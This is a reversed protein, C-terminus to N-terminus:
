LGTEKGNRRSRTLGQSRIADRRLGAKEDWRLFPTVTMHCNRLDWIVILRSILVQSRNLIQPDAEQEGVVLIYNVKETRHRHKKPGIKESTVDLVSLREIQVGDYRDYSEDTIKFKKKKDEVSGQKTVEATLLTGAFCL